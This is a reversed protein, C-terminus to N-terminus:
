TLKGCMGGYLYAEKLVELYYQKTYVKEGIVVDKLDLQGVIGCTPLSNVVDELLGVFAATPGLRYSVNYCSADVFVLHCM